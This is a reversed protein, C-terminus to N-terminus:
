ATLGTPYHSERVNGESSSPLLAKGAVSQMGGQGM